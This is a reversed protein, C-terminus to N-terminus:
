WCYFYYNVRLTLLQANLQNKVKPAGFGIGEGCLPCDIKKNKYSLQFYNYSLGVSLCELLKYEFGAGLTWGNAWNTSRASVGAEQDKLRLKVNGGAWGGEIFTLFCDSYACGFRAKATLVCELQSQYTDIEPFFPSKRTKEFHLGLAGAELGFVACGRQANCGLAGGYVFGEDSFHFDSGLLAPGQTNFYNPNQFKAEERNWGMGAQGTLYVGEWPYCCDQYGPCFFDASVSSFFTLVVLMVAVCKQRM